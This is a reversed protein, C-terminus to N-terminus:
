EISTDRSSIQVEIYTRGDSVEIEEGDEYTFKTKAKRDSKSWKIPVAYGNTIYYGEGSGVTNLNWYYGDSARSYTIKQIIINKTTFEEKTIYDVTVRDNVVRTYMKTEPNYKFETTVSGYDVMVNNATMHEERNELAIDVPNYNLLISDDSELSYGKSDKAYNRVKSTQMYVTHESDLDEPNERWMDGESVIGEIYDILHKKQMDDQAYHSWGFAVFIADSEYSFDLMNHRASRLTGVKTDEEDKFVALIRSTSGETPIEYLLFAKNLGTQVKIAVPTNNISVALPRTKSDLNVIDVKAEIKATIKNKKGIPSGDKKIVYKWVAYGGFALLIIILILISVKRKSIRRKNSRRM